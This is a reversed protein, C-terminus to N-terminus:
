FQEEAGGPSTEKESGVWPKRGKPL